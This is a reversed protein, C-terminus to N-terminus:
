CRANVPHVPISRFLSSCFPSLSVRPWSLAFHPPETFFLHILPPSNAASAHWRVCLFLFLLPDFIHVGSLMGCLTSSSLADCTCLVYAYGCIKQGCPVSHVCCRSRADHSRHPNRIFILFTM